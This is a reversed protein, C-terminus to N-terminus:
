EAFHRDIHTVYDLRALGALVSRWGPQHTDGISLVEGSGCGIRGPSSHQVRLSPDIHQVEALHEETAPVCFEYAVAVKGDIPGTLGTDDIPGLDFHIKAAASPPLEPARAAVIAAFSAVRAGDIAELFLRNSDIRYTRATPLATLYATEQEMIGAPTSCFTRTSAPPSIQIANGSVTYSATYTNCGASGTLSGAEFRATIETGALVSVTAGRGNNYGDARWTTRELPTQTQPIYSLVVSGDAARFTLASSTVTFTATRGLAALYAQEQEMIGAPEGCARLTTSIASFSIASGSVQYSGSYTNCGASGSVGGARFTAVIETGAIVPRTSGASDVYTSLRWATSELLPVSPAPTPTIGPTPPAVGRALCTQSSQM